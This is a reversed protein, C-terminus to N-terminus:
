KEAFPCFFLPKSLAIAGLEILESTSHKFRHHGLYRANHRNLSGMLTKATCPQLTFDSESLGARDYSVYRDLLKVSFFLNNMSCILWWFMKKLFNKKRMEENRTKSVLLEVTTSFGRLIALCDGKMAFGSGMEVVDLMQRLPLLGKIVDKSRKRRHDGVFKTPSSSKHTHTKICGFNTKKTQQNM